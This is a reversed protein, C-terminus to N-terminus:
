QDHTKELASGVDHLKKQIKTIAKQVIQHPEMAGTSEVTFIFREPYTNVSVLGKKELKEASIICEDCFICAAEEVVDMRGKEEDLGFVNRPCSEVFQKKEDDLMEDVRNRNLRVMPEPQFTCGCVPSFKAHQRGTGKRAICRLKLSQGRALKVIVIGDSREGQQDGHIPDVRLGKEM